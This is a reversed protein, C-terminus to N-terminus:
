HLFPSPEGLRWVADTSQMGYGFNVGMDFDVELDEGGGELAIDVGVSMDASVSMDIDM